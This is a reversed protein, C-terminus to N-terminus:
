LRFVFMLRHVNDNFPNRGFDFVPSHLSYEIGFDEHFALLGFMKAGSSYGDSLVFHLGAFPQLDFSGLRIQNYFRIGLQVFASDQISHERGFVITLLSVHADAYIGPSIIDPIIDFHHGFGFSFTSLLFSALINAGADADKGLPFYFGVGLALVSNDNESFNNLACLSCSLFCLLGFLVIIRKM